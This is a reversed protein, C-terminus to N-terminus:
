LIYIFNFLGSSLRQLGIWYNSSSQPDKIKLFNDVAAAQSPTLIEALKM